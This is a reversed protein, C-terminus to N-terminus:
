RGPGLAADWDFRDVVRVGDERMQDVALDVASKGVCGAHSYIGVLDPDDVANKLYNSERAACLSLDCVVDLGPRRKKIARSSVRVCSTTTCGGVVLTRVGCGLFALLREDDYATADMSPKITFPVLEFGDIADCDPPRFPCRTALVPARVDLDRALASLRRFADKIPSVDGFSQAWAGTTFAPQPDLVLLAVGPASGTAAAAQACRMELAWALANAADVEGRYFHRLLEHILGNWNEGRGSGDVGWFGASPTFTIRGATSLLARKLHPHEAPAPAPELPGERPVIADDAVPDDVRHREEAVAGGDIQQAGLGLRADRPIEDVAERGAVRVARGGAGKKVAWRRTTRVGGECVEVVAAGM